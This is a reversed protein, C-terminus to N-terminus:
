QTTDDQKCLENTRRQGENRWSEAVHEQWLVLIGFTKCKVCIVDVELCVVEAKYAEHGHNVRGTSGHRVGHAFAARSADLHAGKLASMQLVLLAGMAGVQIHLSLIVTM